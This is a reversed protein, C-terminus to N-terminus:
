PSSDSRGMDTLSGGHVFHRQGHSGDIQSGFLLGGLPAKGLHGGEPELDAAEGADVRVGNRKTELGGGLAGGDFSGPQVKLM